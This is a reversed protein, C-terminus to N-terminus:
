HWVFLEEMFPIGVAKFINTAPILDNSGDEQSIFHCYVKLMEIDERKKHHAFHFEKMTYLGKKDEFEFKHGIFEQYYIIFAEKKDARILSHIHNIKKLEAENFDSILDPFEFISAHAVLYASREMYTMKLQESTIRGEKHETELEELIISSREKISDMVIRSQHREAFTDVNHEIGAFIDEMQDLDVSVEETLSKRTIADQHYVYNVPNGQYNEQLMIFGCVINFLEIYAYLIKRNKDSRIIILHSIENDSPKRMLQSSNCYRINEIGEDLQDVANIMAKISTRDLGCHCYYEVIIKNLALRLSPTLLIGISTKLPGSLTQTKIVEFKGELAKAGFMRISKKAIAKYTEIHDPGTISLAIKGDETKTIEVGQPIAKITGTSNSRIYAADNDAQLKLHEVNGIKLVHLVVKFTERFTPDLKRGFKNNCKSCILERSHLRGNICQPIIHEDSGDLENSCFICQM